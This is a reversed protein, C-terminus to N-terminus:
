RPVWFGTRSDSNAPQAIESMGLRIDSNAPQSTEPRIDSNEWQTIESMGPRSDRNASRTLEPNWKQRDSRIKKLKWILVSPVQRYGFTGQGSLAQMNWLMCNHHDRLHTHARATKSNQGKTPSQDGCYCCTVKLPKSPHFKLNATKKEWSNALHWTKSDEEERSGM